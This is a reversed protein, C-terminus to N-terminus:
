CQWSQGSAEDQVGDVNTSGRREVPKMEGQRSVRLTASPEWKIVHFASFNDCLIQWKQDVLM